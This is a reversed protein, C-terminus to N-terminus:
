RAMPIPSIRRNQFRLGQAVAPLCPPAEAFELCILSLVFLITFYVAGHVLIEFLSPLSYWPFDQDYYLNLYSLRSVGDWAALLRLVQVSLWVWALIRCVRGFVRLWHVRQAREKGLLSVLLDKELERLNKTASSFHPDLRLAERYAEVAEDKRELEELIVGRLSHAEPLNPDSRIAADCERLANEYEGREEYGYAQDMHTEADGPTTPHPEAM